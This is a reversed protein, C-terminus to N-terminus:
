ARRGGLWGPVRWGKGGEEKKEAGAGEGGRPTPGKGEPCRCESGGAPSGEEGLSGGGPALVIPHPATASAEVRQALVVASADGGGGAAAADAACVAVLAVADAEAGERDFEVDVEEEDWLEAMTCYPGRAHLWPAGNVMRQQFRLAGLAAACRPPLAWALVDLNGRLRALNVSKPIVSTGHELAWRILVQGANKGTIQAVAKVM